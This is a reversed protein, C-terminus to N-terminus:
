SLGTARERLWGLAAAAGNLVSVHGDDPRLWLEAVPCRKALWEGHARPVLRDQAGQVVLVPARVQEPAFGWPAVYALDDDIMGDYGGAMGQESVRGLWSWEHSLAAYDADVFQEHDFEATALYDVLAARGAMAARLEALGSPWMGVSWDLGAGDCPGVGAICVVGLVRQALLAACALAHPGGGSYGLMAFRGIGLADAISAMDGAASAVTRGPRATSCGYGPRDYSVWRIGLEAAVPLLPQPPAGLGPTGHQWCVTLEIGVGDPCSDYVRLTRGDALALDTEAVM